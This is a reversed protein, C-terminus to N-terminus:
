FFIMRLSMLILFLAFIRKLAPAKTQHAARAGIAALPVSGLILPIAHLYDVYGITPFGLRDASVLDNGLGTVVYGAAAATATLVITASSTGLAKKLPFHLISHMIPISLVGGGVGALSSGMGVFIGTGALPLPHVKPMVEERPTRTELLLRVASLLVVGAFIQRLVRGPLVGALQSGALSGVISAVGIILVANWVVHGNAHYQRASSLSAFIIILLSTGFAMHTSVLSSVGTLQYFVLLIPVLVIGGGV